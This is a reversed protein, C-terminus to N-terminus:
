EWLMIMTFTSAGGGSCTFSSNTMQGSNGIVGSGVALYTHATAGVLTLSATSGVGLEGVLAIGLWPTVGLVPTYQFVPGVQANGAVLSSTLNFPYFGWFTSPWAGTDYVLGSLHSIVQMFGQTQPSLGSSNTLLMASDSTPAGTNDASRFIAFGGMSENTTGPSGIKWVFGLFGKATNYCGRTVYTAVTSIPIASGCSVSATTVLGTLNGAGDSGTGVTISMQPGTTSPGTGFELKFFIPATSQLTDNFRGIVYGAITSAAPVLVTATNIQGTDATQTLGLTTFLMTKVEAVWARFAADSTHDIVTTTTATTM